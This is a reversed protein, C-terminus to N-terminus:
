HQHRCRITTSVNFQWADEDDRDSELSDDSVKLEAWHFKKGSPYMRTM